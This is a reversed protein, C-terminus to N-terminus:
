RFGHRPAVRAGPGGRVERSLSRGRSGSSGRCPLLSGSGGRNRCWRFGSGGNLTGLSDLPLRYRRGRRAHRARGRRRIGSRRGRLHLRHFRMEALQREGVVVVCQFPEQSLHAIATRILLGHRRGWRTHGRWRGGLRQEGVILENPQTLEEGSALLGHVDVHRFKEELHHVHESGAVRIHHGVEAILDHSTGRM